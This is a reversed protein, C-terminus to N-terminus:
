LNFERIVSGYRVRCFKGNASVLTLGRMPKGPELISADYGPAYFIACWEHKENRIFGKLTASEFFNAAFPDFNRGSLAPPEVM